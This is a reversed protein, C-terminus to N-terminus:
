PAFKSVNWIRRSGPMRSLMSSRRLTVATVNRSRSGPKIPVKTIDVQAGTQEEWRSTHYELCDGVASRLVMLNITIDKYPWSKLYEIREKTVPSENPAVPSSDVLNDNAAWSAPAMRSLLAASFGLRVAREMFRRRSIKGGFFGAALEKFEKESHHQSM